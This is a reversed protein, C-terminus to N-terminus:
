NLEGCVFYRAFGRPAPLSFRFYYWSDTPLITKGNQKSTPKHLCRRASDVANQPFGNAGFALFGTQALLL